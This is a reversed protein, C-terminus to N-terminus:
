SSYGLSSIHAFSQLHNKVFLLKAIDAPHCLHFLHSDGLPDTLHQSRRATTFRCSIWITLNLRYPRSSSMRKRGLVDLFHQLLNLCSVGAPASSKPRNWYESTDPRSRDDGCIQSGAAAQVIRPLSFVM